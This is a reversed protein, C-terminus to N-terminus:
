FWIRHDYWIMIDCIKQKIAFLINQVWGSECKRDKKMFVNWWCATNSASALWIRPDIRSIAWQMRVNVSSTDSYELFSTPMTCCISPPSCITSSLMPKAWVSCTHTHKPNEYHGIANADSYTEVSRRKNREPVLFRRSRGTKRAHRNQRDVRSATGDPPSPESRPPHVHGLSASRAEVAAPPCSWVATVPTWQRDASRSFVAAPVSEIVRCLWHSRLLEPM